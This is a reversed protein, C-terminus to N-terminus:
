SVKTFPVLVRELPDRTMEADGHRYGEAVAASAHDTIRRAVLDAVGASQLLTALTHRLSHFSKRAMANGVERSTRCPDVGAAPMIRRVFSASVASVTREAMEPCMFGTAKRREELHAALPNVLALTVPKRFRAKKAPLWTISRAEWNVAEWRMRACDMERAGLCLGLLIMTEWETGRTVGLLAQVEDLTFPLREVPEPARREVADAPNRDMWGRAVALRFSRRVEALYFKATTPSVKRLLAGYWADVDHADLAKV